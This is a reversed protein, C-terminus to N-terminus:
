RGGDRRGWRKKWEPTELRPRLRDPWADTMSYLQVFISAVVLLGAVWFGGGLGALVRWLVPHDRWLAIGAFVLFATGVTFAFKRGEAATM